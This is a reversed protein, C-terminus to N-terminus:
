AACRGRVHRAPKATETAAPQEENAKAAKRGAGKGGAAKRGGSGTGPFNMM